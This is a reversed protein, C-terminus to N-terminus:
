TSEMSWFCGNFDAVSLFLPHTHFNLHGLDGIRMDLSKNNAIQLLNIWGSSGAEGALAAPPEHDPNEPCNFRDDYGFLWSNPAGPMCIGHFSRWDRYLADYRDVLEQAMGLAKIASSGTFPLKWSDRFTLKAARYRLNGPLEFAESPRHLQEENTYLVRCGKGSKESNAFFFLLSGTSPLPSCAEFAHLQKLDFQAFFEPAGGGAEPWYTGNWRLGSDNTPLDPLGGFRSEGIAIEDMSSPTAIIDTAPRIAAIIGDRYAHLGHKGCLESVTNAIAACTTTETM